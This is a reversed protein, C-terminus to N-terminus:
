FEIRYSLNPILGLQYRTIFAGQRYDFARYAENRTNTANQLDIAWLGTRGNRDRKLYVRLDIRYVDNLKASYPEGAVFVWMDRRNQAEVPTYRLGGVGLARVGVGWTRVHDEKEKRWERGALANATWGADWRAAREIGAVEYTSRFASGNAQWYYGNGFARSVSLEVGRNQASATSESPLFWPEDWANTIASGQATNFMSWPAPVGDIRQAYAELRVAITSTVRHEYGIVLDKSQLMELRRNDPIPEPDNTVWAYQNIIQWPPLQARLGAGAMLAGHKGTRIRIGGRPEPYSRAERTSHSLAFGANLEVRDSLSFRAQAFPRLLWGVATDSLTNIVAREMASIGVTYRLRAGAAGEIQAIGSLKREYLSAFAPGTRFASTDNEIEKRDQHAASWAATARLLVREGLPVMVAAGAAGMSSTYTIDRSDKDELWLATDSRAKFVNGSMGGMGFIRLEGRKGLKTGAHVALDQFSIAEDGIDVGMASLLGLTSYRYNVLHFSRGGKGIPGETSIDLGLLGAQATWERNQRNGERLQMDMIGGLANGHSAPMVGTRLRTPGLMQASLISVGGGSLTPLDSATGANGLHNPSVIEAGELLWANANPSNGRVMLHNAQDNTVAVGATATVVRTPDYFMAPYRLGQEVTVTRSDLVRGEWWRDVVGVVVAELEIRSPQLVLEVVTEKGSRVWQEGLALAEYGVASAKMTYFGVPVDAISFQGLSDAAAGRQPDSPMLVVAAFPLPAGSAADRVIGRVIGTPTQAALLGAMSCFVLLLLHRM